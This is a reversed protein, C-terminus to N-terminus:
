ENACDSVFVFVDIENNACMDDVRCCGGGGGDAGLGAMLFLMDLVSGELRVFDEMGRDEDADCGAGAFPCCLCMGGDRGGGPGCTRCFGLCVGLTGGMGGLAWCGWSLLSERVMVLPDGEGSRLAEGGDGACADGSSAAPCGPVDAGGCGLPREEDAVDTVM